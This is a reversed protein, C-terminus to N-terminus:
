YRKVLKASYWYKLNKGPSYLLGNNEDMPMMQLTLVRNGNSEFYYYNWSGVFYRCLNQDLVTGYEHIIKINSHKRLIEGNLYVLLEMKNPNIYFRAVDYTSESWPTGSNDQWHKTISQVQIDSIDLYECLFSLNKPNFTTDSKVRMENPLDCPKKISSLSFQKNENQCSIILLFNLTTFVYLNLIKYFVM